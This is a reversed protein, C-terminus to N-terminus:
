HSLKISLASQIPLYSLPGNIIKRIPPWGHQSRLHFWSLRSGEDILSM